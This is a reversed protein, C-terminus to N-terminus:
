EEQQRKWVVKGCKEEGRNKKEWKINERQRKGETERESSDEGNLTKRRDRGRYIGEGDARHRERHRGKQRKGACHRVRLRDARHRKGREEAEGCVDKEETKGKRDVGEAEEGRDIRM